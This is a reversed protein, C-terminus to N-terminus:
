AEVVRMGRLKIHAATAAVGVPVTCCQNHSRQHTKCSMNINIIVGEKQEM